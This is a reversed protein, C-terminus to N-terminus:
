SLMFLGASNNILRPVGFEGEYRSTNLYKLSNRISPRTISTGEKKLNIRTVRIIQGIRDNADLLNYFSNHSREPPTEGNSFFVSSNVLLNFELCFM